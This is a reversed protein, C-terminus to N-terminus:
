GSGFKAYVTRSEANRAHDRKTYDIYGRFSQPLEIFEASGKPLDDLFCAIVKGLLEGFVAPVANGIQKFQQAKKGLIEWDCPFGQLLKVEELTLRRLLGNWRIWDQSASGTVTRAPLSLDAIFTGQRYGWHGGPRTKETRGKSRLGTGNPLDCLQRALTETPFIYNEKDQIEWISDRM